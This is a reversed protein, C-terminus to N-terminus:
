KCSSLKFAKAREKAEAIQEPTMRETLWDKIETVREGRMGALIAWKYAEVYDGVVGRGHAYMRSLSEQALPNGQEASKSNWKYAEILDKKIGFGEGYMFGLAMEADSLGQEAAKHFWKVAEEYDVSVGTGNMFATGLKLQAEAYGQEASMRYWKFMEEDNEISGCESPDYKKGLEYEAQADGENAKKRLEEFHANFESNAKSNIRRICEDILFSFHVGRSGPYDAITYNPNKILEQEFHEVSDPWDFHNPVPEGGFKCQAYKLAAMVEPTNEGIIGLAIIHYAVEAKASANVLSRAHYYPDKPSIPIVFLYPYRTKLINNSTESISFDTYDLLEDRLSGELQCNNSIENKYNNDMCGSLTFISIIVYIILWRYGSNKKM